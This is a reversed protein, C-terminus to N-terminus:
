RFLCILWRAPSASTFWFRRKSEWRQIKDTTLLSYEVANRWRLAETKKRADRASLAGMGTTTPDEVTLFSAIADGVTVLPRFGKGSQLLIYLLCTIKVVTCVMVFALLITSVVVRCQGSVQEVVCHKVSMPAKLSNDLNVFQLQWDDKVAQPNKFCAERRPDNIYSCIWFRASDFADGQVPKYSIIPESANEYDMVVFVSRYTSLYDVDYTSICEPPSLIVPHAVIHKM